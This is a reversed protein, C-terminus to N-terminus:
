GFLLLAAILIIPSLAFGILLLHLPSIKLRETTETTKHAGSMAGMAVKHGASTELSVGGGNGDGVQTSAVPDGCDPCRSYMGPNEKATTHACFMAGPTTQKMLSGMAGKDPSRLSQFLGVTSSVFILVMGIGALEVLSDWLYGMVDSRYGRPIEDIVVFVGYAAV